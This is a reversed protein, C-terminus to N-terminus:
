TGFSDITLEFCRLRIACYTTFIKLNYQNIGALAV